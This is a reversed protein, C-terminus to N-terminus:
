MGGNSLVIGHEKELWCRMEQLTGPGTIKLKPANATFGPLTDTAKPTINLLTYDLTADCDECPGGVKRENETNAQGRCSVAILILLLLGLYSKMTKLKM